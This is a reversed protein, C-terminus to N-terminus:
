NPILQIITRTEPDVVAITNGARFFKYRTVSPVETVTDQPLGWLEVEDPVVAEVTVPAGTKAEPMKARQAHRRVTAQKDPALPVPATEVPTGSTQALAAQAMFAAAILIASPRPIM